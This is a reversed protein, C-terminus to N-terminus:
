EDPEEVEIGELAVRIESIRGLGDEQEASALAQLAEPRRHIFWFADRVVGSSLGDRILDIIENRRTDRIVRLTRVGLLMQDPKLRIQGDVALFPEVAVGMLLEAPWHSGSMSLEGLLNRASWANGEAAQMINRGLEEQAAPDLQAVQEPGAARLVGIAANQPDWSHSRLRDVVRRWYARLPLGSGTLRALPLGDITITFQQDHREELADDEKLGWILELNRPDSAAAQCLVNVIIDRAHDTVLEFLEKVALLGPLVTPHDPLDETTDWEDFIVPEATLFRRLFWVGRRQLLDSGPDAFVGDLAATLKRV